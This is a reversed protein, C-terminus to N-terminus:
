INLLEAANKYFIKELLVKDTVFERMEQVEVSQKQWPSDTAFLIRSNNHKSVFYAIQEKTMFKFAFSTDLYVNKGALNDFVEQWMGQGGLHAGVIKAGPFDRVVDALMKPECHYPERIVLDHGCHFSMIMDNNAVEEYIPYVSRDNAFYDQYDPHFKIGKIGHEKLRAIESKFDDFYPNISGFSVIGPASNAEIAWDNVKLNQKPNTAINLIISIDIGAEKMSAKLGKLTGDFNPPYLSDKCLNAMARPAVADSFCHTHFDIIM